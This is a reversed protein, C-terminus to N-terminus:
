YMDLSLKTNLWVPRSPPMSGSRTWTAESVPQPPSPGGLVQSCTALSNQPLKTYFIHIKLRSVSHTLTHILSHILTHTYSLTYTHILSYTHLGRLTFSSQPCASEPPLRLPSM